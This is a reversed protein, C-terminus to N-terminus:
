TPPQETADQQARLLSQVRLSTELDPRHVDPHVASLARRIRIAEEIASLAEEYRGLLQLQVAFNSLIGALQPLHADPR